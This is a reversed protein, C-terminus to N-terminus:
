RAGSPVSVSQHGVVDVPPQLMLGEAVAASVKKQELYTALAYLVKREEAVYINKLRQWTRATTTKCIARYASAANEYATTQVPLKELVAFKLQFSCVEDDLATGAAVQKAMQVWKADSPM